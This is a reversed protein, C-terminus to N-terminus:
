RKGGSHRLLYAAGSQKNIHRGGRGFGNKKDAIYIFSECDYCHFIRFGAAICKANEHKCKM